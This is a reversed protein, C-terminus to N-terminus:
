LIPPRWWDYRDWEAGMADRWLPVVLGQYGEPAIDSAWDPLEMIRWGEFRGKNQEIVLSRLKVAAEEGGILRVFTNIVDERHDIM